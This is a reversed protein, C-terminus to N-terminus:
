FNRMIIRRARKAIRITEVLKLKVIWM